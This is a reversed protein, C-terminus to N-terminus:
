QLEEQRYARLFTQNAIIVGDSEGLYAIIGLNERECTRGSLVIDIAYDVSPDRACTVDVQGSLTKWRINDDPFRKKLTRKYKDPIAVTKGCLNPASGGSFERPRVGEKGLVCLAPLGFITEEYPGQYALNLKRLIAVDADSEELLDEGTIGICPKSAQSVLSPINEGRAPEITYEQQLSALGRERM